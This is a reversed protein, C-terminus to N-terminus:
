GSLPKVAYCPMADCSSVAHRMAYSVTHGPMHPATVRLCTPSPAPLLFCPAPESATTAARVRPARVRRPPIQAPCVSAGWAAVSVACAAAAAAADFREASSTTAAAAAPATAAGIADPRVLQGLPGQALRLVTRRHRQHVQLSSSSVDAAARWVLQSTPQHPQATPSCTHVVVLLQIISSICRFFNLTRGVVRLSDWVRLCVAGVEGRHPSASVCWHM